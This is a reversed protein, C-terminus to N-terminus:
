CVITNSMSVSPVIYAEPCDLSYTQGRILHCFSPAVIYEAEDLQGKVEQVPVDDPLLFVNLKRTQRKYTPQRFLLVQGRIQKRINLFWKIIDWVLGFASLHPIDVIVHTDTIERPKLISMGDDSIHVVSLAESLSALETECHPFHLQSVADESCKIDFLLGAATKGASRLLEQDWRVVKYTLKGAGTMRFALKTLDCQFVGPCPGWFRYSINGGENLVEPTFRSPGKMVESKDEFSELKTKAAKPDLKLRSDGSPIKIKGPTGLAMTSFHTPIKPKAHSDYHGSLARKPREALYSPSGHIHQLFGESM